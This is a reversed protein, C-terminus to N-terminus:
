LTVKMAGVTNGNIDRLTVVDLGNAYAAFALYGKRIKGGFEELIRGAEYEPNDGFAANDCNIEITVKM